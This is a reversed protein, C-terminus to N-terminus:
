PICDNFRRNKKENKNVYLQCIFIVWVSVEKHMLRVALLRSSGEDLPLHQSQRTRGECLRATVCTGRLGCRCTERTRSGKEEGRRGRNRSMIRTRVNVASYRQLM